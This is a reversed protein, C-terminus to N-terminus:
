QERSSLSVIDVVALTGSFGASSPNSVTQFSFHSFDPVYRKERSPCVRSEIKEISVGGGVADPDRWM